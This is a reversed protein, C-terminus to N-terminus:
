LCLESCILVRRSNNINRYKSMSRNTFAQMYLNTKRSIVQSDYCRKCIRSILYYFKPTETLVHVTVSHTKTTCQRCQCWILNRLFTIEWYIKPPKVDNLIKDFKPKQKAPNSLNGGWGGAGVKHFCTKLWLLWRIKTGATMKECFNSNLHLNQLETDCKYFRLVKGLFEIPCIWSYSLEICKRNLLSHM